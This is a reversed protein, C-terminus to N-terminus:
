TWLGMRAPTGPTAEEFATLAPKDGGVRLTAIATVGTGHRGSTPAAGLGTPAIPQAARAVPQCSMQRLSQFLQDTRLVPETCGVFAFPALIIPGDHLRQQRTDTILGLDHRLQDQSRIELLCGLGDLLEKCM